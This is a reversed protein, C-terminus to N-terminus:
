CGGAVRGPDARGCQRLGACRFYVGAASRQGTRGVNARGPLDGASRRGIGSASGGPQSQGTRHRDGPATARDPKSGPRQHSTSTSPSANGSPRMAPAPGDALKRLEAPHIRPWPRDQGDGPWRCPKFHQPGQRARRSAGGALARRGPRLGSIEHDRFFLVRMPSKEKTIMSLAVASTKGPGAATSGPVEIGTLGTRGRASHGRCRSPLGPRLCKWSIPMPVAFSTRM